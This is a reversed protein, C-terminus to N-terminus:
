DGVLLVAAVHIPASAFIKSGAIPLVPQLIPGASQDRCSRAVMRNSPDRASISRRVAAVIALTKRRAPFPLVSRLASVPPPVRPAVGQVGTQNGPKRVCSVIRGCFIDVRVRFRRGRKTHLIHNAMQVLPCVLGTVLVGAARDQPTAGVVIRDAARPVKRLWPTYVACAMFICWSTIKAYM